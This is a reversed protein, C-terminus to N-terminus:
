SAPKLRALVDSCLERLDEIAESANFEPPLGALDRAAKEDAEYEDDEALDGDISWQKSLKECLDFAVSVRAHLPVDVLAGDGATPKLLVWLRAFVREYERQISEIFCMPCDNEDEPDEPEYSVVAQQDHTHEGCTARRGRTSCLAGHDTMTEFTFTGGCTDCKQEDSM